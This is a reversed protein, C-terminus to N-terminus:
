FQYAFISLAKQDSYQRSSVRIPAILNYTLGVLFFFPDKNWAEPSLGTIMNMLM